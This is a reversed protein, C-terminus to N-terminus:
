QITLTSCVKLWTRGYKRLSGALLSYIIELNWQTKASSVRPPFKQQWCLTRDGTSLRDLVALWTMFSYKPTSYSFWVGNWWQQVPQPVRIKNWTAKSSIREKFVGDKFRWLHVDAVNLKIQARPSDILDEVANLLPSRHRRQQHNAAVMAVTDHASIGLDIFGRSRTIWSVWLSSNGSLIRWILKMICVTNAEKLPKIGLGGEKKPRCVDDWAVKAKRSSM